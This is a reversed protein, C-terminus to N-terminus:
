TRSTRFSTQFGIAAFPAPVIGCASRVGCTAQAPDILEQVATAATAGSASADRLADRTRDSQSGQTTRSNRHRIQSQSPWCRRLRLARTPAGEHKSCFNMFAFASFSTM